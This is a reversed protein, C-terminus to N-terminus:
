HPVYREVRGGTTASQILAPDIVTGTWPIQFQSPFQSPIPASCVGKIKRSLSVLFLFSSTWPGITPLPLVEEGAVEIM